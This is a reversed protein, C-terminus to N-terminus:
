PQRCLRFGCTNNSVEPRRRACRLQEPEEEFSGGRQVRQARPDLSNVVPDRQAGKVYSQFRDQVMEWVNGHM